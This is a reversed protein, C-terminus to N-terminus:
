LNLFKLLDCMGRDTWKNEWEIDIAMGLDEFPKKIQECEDKITKDSQDIFLKFITGNIKIYGIKM